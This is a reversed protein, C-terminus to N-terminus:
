LKELIEAIKADLEEEGLGELAADQKRAKIDLLREYEARTQERTVRANREEVKVNFVRQVLAMRLALGDDTRSTDMLHKVEQLKAQESLGAYIMDLRELTLDWLDEVSLSGRFDFRVKQRTAVEFINRDM